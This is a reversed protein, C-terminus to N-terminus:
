SRSKRRSSRRAPHRRDRRSRSRHRAARAARAGRPAPAQPRAFGFRRTPQRGLFINDLVSMAPALNSHQYICAVGRRIMERPDGLPAAAGDIEVSGSTPAVAGTLIKILTSKGAGNSGILARVEGPMVTLDADSLARLNGYVKTLGIGRICPRTPWTLRRRWNAPSAPAAAAPRAASRLRGGRAPDRRHHDAARYQSVGLLTLGLLVVGLLFAGIAPGFVSGVGGALSVGGIVAAAIATLEM